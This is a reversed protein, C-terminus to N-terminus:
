RIPAKFILGISFHYLGRIGGGALGLDGAGAPDGFQRRLSEGGGFDALPEVVRRLRRLRGRAPEVRARRVQGWTPLRGTGGWDAALARIAQSLAGKRCFRLLIAGTKGREGNDSGAIGRGAEVVPDNDM